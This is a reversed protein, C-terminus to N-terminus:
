EFISQILSFHYYDHRYPFILYASLYSLMNDREATTMRNLAPIMKYHTQINSNPQGSNLAKDKNLLNNIM